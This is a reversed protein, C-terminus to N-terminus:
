KIKATYLKNSNQSLLYDKFRNIYTTSMNINQVLSLVSRNSMNNNNSINSTNNNHVLSRIFRNSM